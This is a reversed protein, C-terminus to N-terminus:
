LPELFEAGIGVLVPIGFLEPCLDDCVLLSPAAYVLCKPDTFVLSPIVIRGPVRSLFIGAAM